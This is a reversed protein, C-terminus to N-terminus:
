LHAQFGKQIGGHITWLVVASNCKQPVKHAGPASAFTRLHAAPLASCARTHAPM